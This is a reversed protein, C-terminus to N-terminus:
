RSLMRNNDRLESYVYDVAYVQWLLGLTDPSLRRIKVHPEASSNGVGSMKINACQRMNYSCIPQGINM